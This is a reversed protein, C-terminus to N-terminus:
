HPGTSSMAPSSRSKVPAICNGCAVCFIATRPRTRCPASWRAPCSTSPDHATVVGLVAPGAVIDINAILVTKLLWLLAGAAASMLLLLAFEGFVGPM